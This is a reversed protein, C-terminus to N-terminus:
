RRYGGIFQEERVSWVSVQTIDDRPDALLAQAEAEVDATDLGGKLWESSVRGPKTGPRTVCLLYPGRHNDLFTM